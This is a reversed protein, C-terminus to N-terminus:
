YPRTPESIHILSLNVVIDVQGWRDVCGAVAEDVAAKQTVDTALFEAEVGIEERIEEVTARGRSEDKEAVLVRAGERAFRRAIGRGIGDGAGTIVAARGELKAM